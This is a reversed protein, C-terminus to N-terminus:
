ILEQLIIDALEEKPRKSYHTKQNDNIIYIENDDSGFGTDSKAIDNAIIYDLNKEVLKQRANEIIDQSEAAFGVLIQEESKIEGLKSLIDPNATLKLQRNKQGSKKIKDELLKEPRFDSVAATMIIIDHEPARNIIQEYMECATSVAIKEVGLPAKLEVPGSVLTVDGGYYSASRALAYGMKGSSYNSLFRVPDLPERTPGASILIKKDQLINETLNKQIFAFLTEPEPMRGKGTTGCALKGSEPEIVKIGNENLYKINDRVSFNNYMKTNMSPAILVPIDVSLVLTSLLDDAIGGAMKGIFNATAPSILLIDAKDALSIHKIDYHEPPSFLDTEVPNGTISRFTLPSIFETASETMITFVNYGKKTLMSALSAMKFAAIGGTIGLLVNEKM